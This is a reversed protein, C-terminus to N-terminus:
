AKKYGKYDKYGSLRFAMYGLLENNEFAMVGLDCRFLENISKNIETEYKNNFLLVSVKQTECLIVILHQSLLQRQIIDLSTINMDEGQDLYIPSIESDKINCRCGILSNILTWINEFIM